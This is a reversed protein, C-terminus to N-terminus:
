APGPAATEPNQNQILISSKDIGRWTISKMKKTLYELKEDDISEFFERSVLILSVFYKGPYAPHRVIGRIQGRKANKKAFKVFVHEQEDLLAPADGKGKKGVFEVEFGNITNEIINRVLNFDADSQVINPNNIVDALTKEKLNM